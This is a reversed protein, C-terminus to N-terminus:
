ELFLHSTYCAAGLLTRAEFKVPGSETKSFAFSQGTWRWVGIVDDGEKLEIGGAEGFSLQIERASLSPLGRLRRALAGEMIPTPRLM